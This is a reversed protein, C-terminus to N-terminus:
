NIEVSSNVKWEEESQFGEKFEKLDEVFRCFGDSSVYVYNAKFNKRFEGECLPYVGEDELLYFENLKDIVEEVNTFEEIKFLDTTQNKNDKLEFVKM